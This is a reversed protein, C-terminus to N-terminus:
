MVMTRAITVASPMRRIPTTKWAVDTLLMKSNKNQTTPTDTIKPSSPMMTANHALLKSCSVMTSTNKMVGSEMTPPTNLVTRISGGQSLQIAHALGNKKKTLPRLCE